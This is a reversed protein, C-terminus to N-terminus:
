QSENGISNYKRIMAIAFYAVDQKQILNGPVLPFLTLLLPISFVNSHACAASKIIIKDDLNRENILRILRSLIIINNYTYYLVHVQQAHSKFESGAWKAM